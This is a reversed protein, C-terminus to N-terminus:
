EEQEVGRHFHLLAAIEEPLFSGDTHYFNECCVFFIVGQFLRLLVVSWCQLLESRKKLV